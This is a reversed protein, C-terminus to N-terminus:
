YYFSLGLVPGTHGSMVPSYTTFYPDSGKFRDMVMQRFREGDEISDTYHVNLRLNQESGAYESVIDIMKKQTKEWGRGRGINEMKGTNNMMGVIPKLSLLEGMYAVKPARGSRIIYKLTEMGILWKVRPKLDEVLQIIEEMSKGEAAAKAAEEVMFGEAGAATNSDIVEINLDPNDKKMLEAAQVGAEGIASLGGSVFIGLVSDSTKLLHSYTNTYESLAPAGTSYERIEPFLKWFEDYKMDVADRYSKGNIHLAVPVIGINYKEFIEPPLCTVSDTAIGVKAM